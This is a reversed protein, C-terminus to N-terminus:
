DWAAARHNIRKNRSALALRRKVKRVKGEFPLIQAGFNKALQQEKWRLLGSRVFGPSLGLAECVNEFSFLWENDKEMIWQEAERFLRKGKGGQALVYRQFCNIAEELVALMLAMEPELSIRRPCTQGFAEQAFMDPQFSLVINNDTWYASM